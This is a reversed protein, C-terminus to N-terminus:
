FEHGDKDFDTLERILGTDGDTWKISGQHNAETNIFIFGENKTGSTGFRPPHCERSHREFGSSTWHFKRKESSSTDAWIIGNAAASGTTDIIIIHEIGDSDTFRLNAGEVWMYGADNQTIVANTAGITTTSDHVLVPIEDDQVLHQITYTENADVEGPVKGIFSFLIADTNTTGQLTIIPTGGADRWQTAVTYTNSGTMPDPTPVVRITACMAEHNGPNTSLNITTISSPQAIFPYNAGDFFNNGSAADLSEWEWPNTESGDGGGINMADFNGALQEFRSGKSPQIIFTTM